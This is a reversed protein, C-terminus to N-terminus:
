VLLSGVRREMQVHPLLAVLDVFGPDTPQNGSVYVAVSVGDWGDADRCARRLVFAGLERIVQRQEAVAIFDGPGTLGHPSNWRPLAEVCTMRSGDALM